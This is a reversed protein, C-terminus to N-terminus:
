IKNNATAFLFSLDSENIKRLQVLSASINKKKNMNRKEKRNSLHKVASNKMNKLYDDRQKPSQQGKIIQSQGGYLPDSNM